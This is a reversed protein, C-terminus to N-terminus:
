RGDNEERERMLQLELELVRARLKDITRNKLQILEKVREKASEAM